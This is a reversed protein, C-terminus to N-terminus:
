PQTYGGYWSSTFTLNETMGSNGSNSYDNVNGNLPWWGVLNQLDVPAGGIGENYMAEIAVNSLSTNYIQVNSVMGDFLWGPWDGINVSGSSAYIGQGFSYSNSYEKGNVFDYMFVTGNVAVSVAVMNWTNPLGSVQAYGNCGIAQGTSSLYCSCPDFCAWGGSCWSWAPGVTVGCKSQQVSGLQNGSNDYFWDLMTFSTLKQADTTPINNYGIFRAVYQPVQNNCSGELNSIGLEGNRIVQCNGATAKPAFTLPNFIGLFSLAGLVVAIILISWGYTMLYEMASQSKM